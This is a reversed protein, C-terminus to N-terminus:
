VRDIEEKTIICILGGVEDNRKYPHVRGRWTPLIPNQYAFSRKTNIADLCHQLEELLHASFLKQYHGQVWATPALNKVKDLTQQYVALPLSEAFFLCMTPSLADGALLIKEEKLLLGMSGATHGPLAVAEATIKGLDFVMGETLNLLYDTRSLSKQALPLPRGVGEAIHDLVEAQEAFLHWDARNLYVQGFAANGGAHDYHGHSNVVVLPLPTVEEVAARLDGIGCMTDFLLAKEDGVVLTSCHGLENQFQVVQPTLWTQTFSRM